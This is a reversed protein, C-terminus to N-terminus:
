ACENARSAEVDNLCALRPKARREALALIQVVDDLLVMSEDFATGPRHQPELPEGRRPPGDATDLYHMREALPLRPPHRLAVHDTLRPQDVLHESQGHLSTWGVSERAHDWVNCCFGDFQKLTTRAQSSAAEWVAHRPDGLPFPNGPEVPDRHSWRPVASFPM